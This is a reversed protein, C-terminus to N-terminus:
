SAKMIKQSLNYIIPNSIEYEINIIESGFTLDYEFLCYPIVPKGSEMRSFDQENIKIIINENYPIIEPSTFNLELELYKLENKNANVSTFCSLIFSITIVVTIIKLIFKNIM